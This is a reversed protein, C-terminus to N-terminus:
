LRFGSCGPVRMAFRLRSLVCLLRLRPEGHECLLPRMPLGNDEGVTVEPFANVAARRLRRLLDPWDAQLIRNCAATGRDRWTTVQADKLAVRIVGKLCALRESLLRKEPCNTGVGPKMRRFQCSRYGHVVCRHTAVDKKGASVMTKKKKM